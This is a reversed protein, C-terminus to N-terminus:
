CSRWYLSLRPIRQILLIRIPLRPEESRQRSNKSIIELSKPYPTTVYLIYNISMNDGTLIIM